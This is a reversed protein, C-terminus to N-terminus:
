RNGGMAVWQTIACLEAESLPSAPPMLRSPESSALRSLLEGCGLTESDVRRPHGGNGALMDYAEDIDALILGGQAGERAHCASGAVGCRPQLTTNFVNEFTPEYLPACETTVEACVSDDSCAAAGMLALAVAHTALFRHVPFM